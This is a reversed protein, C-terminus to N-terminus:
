QAGAYEKYNGYEAPDVYKLLQVSFVDGEVFDVEAEFAMQRTESKVMGATELYQRWTKKETGSADAHTVDVTIGDLPESGSFLVVLDFLITTSKPGAPEAEMEMGMEEGEGEGEGEAPEGAEEAQAVEEAAADGETADGAEAGQEDLMESEEIPEPEEVKPFWNELKVTYQGRVQTVKDEPSGPGCGVLSLVVALSALLAVVQLPRPANKLSSSRLSPLLRM